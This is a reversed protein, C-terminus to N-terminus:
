AAAGFVATVIDAADDPARVELAIGRHDVTIAFAFFTCCGQEAVALRALEDLPVEPDLVLRVGSGDEVPERRRVHAVLDQWAEARDPMEEAPLTCAIAPDAWEGLIVSMAPRGANSTPAPDHGALCACEDGCPGDVPADGLHAAATQLQATFQILEASRRQTDNIKETVLEHLRAQVPACDAAEWLEALDAIEELSCGLEKGRAVFRLRELSSDDYLRYGAHTRGVPDLLGHTEYYRLASASFGSREAV